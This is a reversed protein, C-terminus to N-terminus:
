HWPSRIIGFVFHLLHSISCILNSFDDYRGEILDKSSIIDVEPLTNRLVSEFMIDSTSFILFPQTSQINVYRRIIGAIDDVTLNDAHKNMNSIRSRFLVESDIETKDPQTFDEFTRAYAESKELLIRKQEDLWMQYFEQQFIDDLVIAERESVIHSEDEVLKRATSTSPAEMKSFMEAYKDVYRAAFRSVSWSRAALIERLRTRVLDNFSYEQRKAM